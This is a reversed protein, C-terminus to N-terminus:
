QLAERLIQRSMELLDERRPHENYNTNIFDELLDYPNMTFSGSLIKDEVQETWRVSYHFAGKLREAIRAEDIGSRTSEGLKINLRIMKGDVNDPIGNLIRDTADEVGSVDADLSIMDRTPLEVFRWVPDDSPTVELFGKADGREGWDIREVAGPYVIEVGGTSEMRQHLHIHGLLVLDINDPIVDRRLSFEGPLVEPYSTKRLKAGEVYYHGLLIKCDTRLEEARRRIWEGLMEQGVHLIQEQPVERGMTEYIMGAIQRPHLYPLIIFGVCKGGMDVTEVTPRRYVTVNPYGRFDDISTGRSFNSPQDHNGALIWVPIGASELPEIVDQRIYERVTPSVHVREFLDGLVIFLDAGSKIANKAALVLNHHIDLARADLGSEPDVHIGFNIGEHVDAIAIIRGSGSM